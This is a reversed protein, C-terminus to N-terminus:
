GSDPDDIRFQLNAYTAHALSNSEDQELAKLLKERAQELEGRQLYQAGLQANYQAADRRKEPTLEDSKGACSQLLVVLVLLLAKNATMKM